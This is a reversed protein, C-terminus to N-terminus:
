AESDTILDSQNCRWRKENQNYRFGAAMLMENIPGWNDGLFTGQANRVWVKVADHGVEFVELPTMIGSNEIWALTVTEIEDWGQMNVSDKFVWEPTTVEPLEIANTQDSEVTKREPYLGMEEASVEASGVYNSVARNWARTKATAKVRHYWKPDMNNTHHLEEVTCAGEGHCYRGSQLNIVKLIVEFGYLKTTITREIPKKKIYHTFKFTQPEDYYIPTYIPPDDSLTFGQALKAFGSRATYQRGDFDIIYDKGKIMLTEKVKNVYATLKKLEEIPMMPIGSITTDSAVIDREESM